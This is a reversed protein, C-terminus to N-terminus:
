VFVGLRSDVRKVCVTMEEDFRSDMLNLVPVM